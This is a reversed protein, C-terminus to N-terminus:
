EEEDSYIIENRTSISIINAGKGSVRKNLTDILSFDDWFHMPILYQPHLEDIVYEATKFANGNLRSDVPVFAFDITKIGLGSRIKDIEAKFDAEEVEPIIM